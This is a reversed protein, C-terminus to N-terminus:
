KTRRPRSAASRFSVMANAANGLPIRGARSLECTKVLEKGTGIESACRCTVVMFKRSVMRRNRSPARDCSCRRSSGTSSCLSPRVPAAGGFQSRGFTQTGPQPHIIELVIVGRRSAVRRRGAASGPPARRRAFREGATQRSWQREVRRRRGWHAQRDQRGVKEGVSGGRTRPTICVHEHM